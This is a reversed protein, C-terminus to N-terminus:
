LEWTASLSCVALFIEASVYVKFLGDMLYHDCEELDMISM